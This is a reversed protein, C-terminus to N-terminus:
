QLNTYAVVCKVEGSADSPMGWILLSVLPRLVERAQTCVGRALWFRLVLVLLLVWAHAVARGAGWWPARARRVCVCWGLPLCVDRVFLRLRGRARSQARLFHLSRAYRVRVLGRKSVFPRLLVAVVKPEVIVHNYCLCIDDCARAARIRSALVCFAELRASRLPVVFDLILAAVDNPLRLGRVLSTIPVHFM